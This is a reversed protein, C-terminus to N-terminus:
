ATDYGASPISGDLVGPKLQARSIPPAARNANRAAQAAAAATREQWAPTCKSLKRKADRAAAATSHISRFLSTEERTDKSVHNAPLTFRVAKNLVSYPNTSVFTRRPPFNALANCHEPAEVPRTLPALYRIPQQVPIITNKIKSNVRVAGIESGRCGSADQTILVALCSTWGEYRSAANAPLEMCKGDKHYVLRKCNKCVHKGRPAVDATARRGGRPAVPVTAAGNNGPAAM